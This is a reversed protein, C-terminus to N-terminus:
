GLVEELFAVQDARARPDTYIDFHGYPYHIARGRPAREAAKAAPGPPTTQDGDCVCVLLPCEIKAAKAAPRYAGIRLMVRAAVENRWSSGPPVIATFGPEAEPATMAALTGPAGVAPITRPARGALAGAQDAIAVATARAINKPEAVRMTSLGDAFPCQAIAAAIDKETAALELVHGGSFSSGWLVVPGITRAYAIAVRYDDLQRRIDLLQRPEGGSAGFHRYDFVLVAYGAQAFAEAYPELGEDRTASFGHAMVVCAKAAAPRYLWAALPDDGSQLEIDERASM